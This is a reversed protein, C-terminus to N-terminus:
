PKPLEDPVVGNLVTFFRSGVGDARGCDDVVYWGIQHVGNTLTTTDLLYHGGGSTGNSFGPFYLAIDNRTDGYAVPQLAGSDIAVWANSSTITCSRQDASNANPTLAWGFNFFTGTKTEGYAPVDIGGFPKTAHANDGTITKSGVSVAHGERDVAIAYLTTPGNGQNWLGWTLLLYGWGARNAFPMAPHAAEVDPRAGTVFLATAVFVKGHWPYGPANVPVTTENPALDRWIEVREVGVDDLAWGTVAISGAVTTNAIPTDFGGFPLASSSDPLITV